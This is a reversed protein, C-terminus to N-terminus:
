VTEEPKNYGHQMATQLPPGLSLCQYHISNQVEPPLVDLLNFSLVETKIKFHMKKNTISLM